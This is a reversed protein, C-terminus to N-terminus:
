VFMAFYDETSTKRRGSGYWLTNIEARLDDRGLRFHPLRKTEIVISASVGKAELLFRPLATRAKCSIGGIPM